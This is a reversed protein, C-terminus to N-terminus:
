PIGLSPFPVNEFEFSITKKEEHFRNKMIRFDFNEFFFCFVFFFSKLLYHVFVQRKLYTMINNLTNQNLLM